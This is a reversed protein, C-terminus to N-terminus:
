NALVLYQWADGMDVAQLISGLMDPTLVNALSQWWVQRLGTLVPGAVEDKLKDTDVPRGQSDLIM